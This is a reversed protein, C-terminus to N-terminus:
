YPWTLSLIFCFDGYALGIPSESGRERGEGLGGRWHQHGSSDQDLKVWAALSHFFLSDVAFCTDVKLFVPNQGLFASMILALLFM